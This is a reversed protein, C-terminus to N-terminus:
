ESVLVAAGLLGADNGLTAPTIELPAHAVGGYVKAAVLAKLPRTLFEGQASVGGGLMVCEPRLINVLNVIGEGLMKIYKAVVLKASQDGTKACEFATLGSVNELSGQSFEWMTSNQDKEMARKTERILATASAYVEFCGRRGCACIEGGSVIVTHGIEAGASRYGEFLKGDLIIGGGIGTGLTILVSNKYGKGAGFRAEGLAAVNADNAIRVPVNFTARFMSVIPVDKWDLNCAYVVVGEKGNVVGPIGIGVGRLDDKVIGAEDLLLRSLCAMEMVIAEAGREPDTKVSKRALIEGDDSVLAFKIGTGGLDIGISVM